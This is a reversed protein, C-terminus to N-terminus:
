DTKDVGTCCESKLFVILENLAEYQPICFLTRSERQQEVLGVKVLRSIHHSLTSGPIDLKKQIQGVSVGDHGAKVLYRFIALRTVNGLEALMNAADEHKMRIFINM